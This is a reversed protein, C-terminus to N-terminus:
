RPQVIYAISPLSEARKQTRTQAKATEGKRVKNKWAAPLAPRLRGRSILLYRHTQKLGIIKHSLPGGFKAGVGRRQKKM